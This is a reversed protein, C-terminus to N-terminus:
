ARRATPAKRARMRQIKMKEPEAQPQPQATAAVPVPEDPKLVKKQSDAAKEEAEALSDILRDFLQDSQAQTKGATVPSEDKQVTGAQEVASIIEKRLPHNDKTEYLYYAYFPEDIVCTDPRNEFARMLATSINRPGSWVAIKM